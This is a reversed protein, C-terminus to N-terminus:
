RPHADYKKSGIPGVTAIATNNHSHDAFLIDPRSEIIELQKASLNRSQKASQNRSTVLKSLM